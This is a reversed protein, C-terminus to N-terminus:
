NGFLHPTLRHPGDERVAWGDTPTPEPDLGAWEAQLPRPLRMLRTVTAESAGLLLVGTGVLLRLDLWANGAYVYHLDVTLKRRVSDLDTDAPLQLQALGTIGPRVLLRERYRPIAEELAPVFEPREPRPGILSMHGLLVNWLQPLEDLHTHRLFRGLRTVRPDGPRSWCAGAKESDQVMTRVKHLTYPRGGLGLRTQSYFAPGRSTLKVLLAAVAMVPLAPILLALTLLFEVWRKWRSEHWPAPAPGFTTGQPAADPRPRLPARVDFDIGPTIVSEKLLPNPVAAGSAV